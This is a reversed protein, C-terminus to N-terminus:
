GTDTFTSTCQSHILSSQVLNKRHGSLKSDPYSSLTCIWIYIGGRGRQTFPRSFCFSRHELRKSSRCQESSRCQLMSSTMFGLLQTSSRCCTRCSLQMIALWTLTLRVNKNGEAARRESYVRVQTDIRSPILNKNTTLPPVSIGRFHVNQAQSVFSPLSRPWRGIYTPPATRRGGGRGGRAAALRVNVFSPLPCWFPAHRARTRM